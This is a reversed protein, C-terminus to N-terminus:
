QDNGSGSTGSGSNQKTTGDTNTARTKGGTYDAGSSGHETGAPTTQDNLDGANPTRTDMSQDRNGQQLSTSDNVSSNNIDSEDTATTDATGPQVQTSDLRFAESGNQQQPQQQMQTSDTQAIITATSLLMGGLILLMKKMLM